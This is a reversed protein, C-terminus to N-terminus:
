AVGRRSESGERQGDSSGGQKQLWGLVESPLFRYHSSENARGPIRYCPVDRERVWRLLTDHSADLIKAMDATKVLEKVEEAPLNCMEGGEPKGRM